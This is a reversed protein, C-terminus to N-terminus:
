GAGADPGCVGKSRPSRPLPVRAPRDAAPALLRLLARADAADACNWAANELAAAREEPLSEGALWRFKALLAADTPPSDDDWRAEAEGADYADGAVTEIRVRARRKAPFRASLAADEVLEVRDALRAVVPDRLGAATLEAVGLRGHVLAAAVPFPLRPVRAPAAENEPAAGTGGPDRRRPRRPLPEADAAAYGSVRLGSGNRKVGAWKVFPAVASLTM